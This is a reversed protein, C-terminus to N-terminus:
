ATPDHHAHVAPTHWATILVDALGQGTAASLGAVGGQRYREMAEDEFADRIDPGFAHRFRSPLISTLVDFIAVAARVPRPSGSSM